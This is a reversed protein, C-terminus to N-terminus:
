SRRPRGTELGSTVLPERWYHRAANQLVGAAQEWNGRREHLEAYALLARIEQSPNSASAGMKKCAAEVGDLNGSQYGWQALKM